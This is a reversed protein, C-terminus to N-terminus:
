KRSLPIRVTYEAFDRSESSYLHADIGASKMAEVARFITNYFIRIDKFAFKQIPPSGNEFRIARALESKRLSADKIKVIDCLQKLGLRSRSIMKREASTYDLLGIYESVCRETLGLQLAAQENSFGFRCILDRLAEAKAFDTPSERQVNEVLSYVAAQRKTCHLIICPVVTHGAMVAARLRREGSILEFDYRTVFRVILPQLIGNREISRSLAALETRSYGRRTSLSGSILCVPIMAIKREAKVTKEM